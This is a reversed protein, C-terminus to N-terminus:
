PTRLVYERRMDYTQIGAGFVSNADLRGIAVIDFPDCRGRCEM